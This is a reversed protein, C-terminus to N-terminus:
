QAVGTRRQLVASPNYQCTHREAKTEREFCSVHWMTENERLGGVFLSNDKAIQELRWPLPRKGKRGEFM